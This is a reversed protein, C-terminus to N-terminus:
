WFYAFPFIITSIDLNIAVQSSLALLKTVARSHELPISYHYFFSFLILNGGSKATPSKLGLDELNYFLGQEEELSLDQVTSGFVTAHSEQSIGIYLPLGIGIYVMIALLLISM